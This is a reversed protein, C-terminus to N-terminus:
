TYCLSLQAGRGRDWTGKGGHQSQECAPHVVSPSLLGGDPHARDVGHCAQVNNVATYLLLIDLALGGLICWGLIVLFDIFM